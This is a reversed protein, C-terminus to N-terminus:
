RLLNIMVNCYFVRSSDAFFAGPDGICTLRMGLKPALVSVCAVYGRTHSLLVTKTETRLVPTSRSLTLHLEYSVGM